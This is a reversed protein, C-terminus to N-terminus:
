PKRIVATSSSKLLDTVRKDTVMETAPNGLRTSYVNLWVDEAQKTLAAPGFTDKYSVVTAVPLLKADQEKQKIAEKLSVVKAEAEALQQKLADLEGHLLLDADYFNYHYDHGDLLVSYVEREGNMFEYSAVTGVQGSYQRDSDEVPTQSVIVRNGAKFKIGESM